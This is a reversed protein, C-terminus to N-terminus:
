IYNLKEVKNKIKNKAKIVNKEEKPDYRWDHYEKRFVIASEQYRQYSTRRLKSIM